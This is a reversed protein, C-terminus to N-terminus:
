SRVAQGHARPFVPVRTGEWVDFRSPARRGRIRAWLPRLEYSWPYRVRHRRWSMGLGASAEELRNRTLFEISPLALLDTRAEAMRLAFGQRKESVMAAGDEERRYFPSDLIAVRGGDNLVRVAEDLALRLDTTYHLSANFVALDFLPEAFPLSEFSAVVRPFLSQGPERYVGAAGLGDVQDCRWDLAVASHGGIELRRCLWGSGSGLDLVRLPRSRARALPVVVRQLFREYTRARVHWQAARPGGRVYPMSRLESVDGRGERERLEAYAERFRASVGPDTRREHPTMPLAM